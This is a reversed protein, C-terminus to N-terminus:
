WIALGAEQGSPRHNAQILDLVAQANHVWLHRSLVKRRAAAGLAKRRAEDAALARLCETLGDPEAPEFLLGDDGDDIAEELPRYRPAVAPVGMAMYEFVKMPSGFLNSAPMVGIDMAAVHEPIAAHPVKGTWVLRDGIGLERALAEAEPRRPGDGVMLLRLTPFEPALEAVSRVLLDVGHWKAFSGAFGIVTAGQLGYTERLAAGTVREPDFRTEDVANPTVRVKEPPLGSEVLQDRLYGSVVILGTALNFIRREFRRALWPMRLSKGQRTRDVSATDNVELVVPIGALRGALVGAMNYLAYREYILAPKSQRCRRLLRPLAPVNYGIEMCEFLLQPVRPSLWSWLSTKPGAGVSVVRNPDTRVGPPGVIEVEYGLKELGGALGHIHVAEVDRGQTRHHYLARM